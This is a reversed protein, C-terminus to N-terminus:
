RIRGGVLAVALLLLLLIPCRRLLVIASRRLLLSVTRRLLRVARPAVRAPRRWLLAVSGLSTAVPPLLPAISTLM